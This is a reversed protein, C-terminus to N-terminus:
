RVNKAFDVGHKRQLLDGAVEHIEKRFDENFDEGINKLSYKNNKYDIKLLVEDGEGDSLHYQAFGFIFKKINKLNKM